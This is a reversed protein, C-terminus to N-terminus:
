LVWELVRAANEVARPRGALRWSVGAAEVTRTTGGAGEVLARGPLWDWSTVTHQLWLDHGGSATDALDVSGAGLMRQTAARAVVAEYGRRQPTDGLFKPDLYTAVAAEELPVDAPANLRKGDRTTPIEPGGLWTYGMATRHVAGLIIREPNDPDGEVLALASCWYDSGRTFNFTGDVPDVVWTRGSSSKAAAGEEGVIGDDPRAESLVRSVFHEAARDADTVVDTLGTKHDVSLGIERLRWALRGANLVLDRALGEDDRDGHAALQTKAMADALELPSHGGPLTPSDQTDSMTEM